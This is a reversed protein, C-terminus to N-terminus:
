WKINKYREPPKSVRETRRSTGTATSPSGRPENPENNPPSARRVPNLQYTANAGSPPKAKPKPKPIGPPRFASTVNGNGNGNPKRSSANSSTSGISRRVFSPLVGSLSPAMNRLSPTMSRVAGLGASTLNVIGGAVASSVRYLGKAIGIAQNSRTSIGIAARAARNNRSKIATLLKAKNAARRINTVTNIYKNIQTQNTLIKELQTINANNLQNNFNQRLRNRNIKSRRSTAEKGNNNAKARKRHEKTMNSNSPKVISDIAKLGYRGLGYVSFERSYGVSYPDFMCIFEGDMCAQMFLYIVFAMGDGTSFVYRSLNGNVDRRNKNYVIIYLIQLFDGFFKSITGEDATRGAVVPTKNIELAIFDTNEDIRNVATLTPRKPFCRVDFLHEEESNPTANGDDYVFQFNVKGLNLKGSIVPPFNRPFIPSFISMFGVHAHKQMFRGPDVLGGTTITNLVKLLGPNGSRKAYMVAGLKEEVRGSGQDLAYNLRFEKTSVLHQNNVITFMDPPRDIGFIEFARSKFRSEFGTAAKYDYPPVSGVREIIGESIMRVVQPPVKYDQFARIMRNRIPNEFLQETHNMFSDPSYLTTVLTNKCYDDHTADLWMLVMFTMLKSDNFIIKEHESANIQLREQIANTATTVYSTVWTPDTWAYDEFEDLLPKGQIDSLVKYLVAYASFRESDQNLLKSQKYIETLLTRSIAQSERTIVAPPLAVKKYATYKAVNLLLPPGKPVIFTSYPAMQNVKALRSKKSQVKKWFNAINKSNTIGLANLNITNGKNTAARNIAATINKKRQQEAKSLAPRPPM